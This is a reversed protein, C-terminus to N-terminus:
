KLFAIGINFGLTQQADIDNAKFAYSYRVSLYFPIALQTLRIGVEPSFGFQWSSVREYWWGWDVIQSTYYPGMNLGIFPVASSSQKKFHYQVTPALQVLDVIKIRTGEITTTGDLEFVGNEKREFTNWSFTFGLSLQKKLLFRYEFGFGEFSFKDVFKSTNGKPQAINYTVVFMHRKLEEAKQKETLGSAASDGTPAKIKVSKKKDDTKPEHNLLTDSETPAEDDTGAIDKESAADVEATATTDESPSSDAPETIGADRATEEPTENEAANAEPSTATEPVAQDSAEGDNAAKPTETASVEKKVSGEDVPPAAKEAATKDTKPAPAKKEAAEKKQASAAPAIALLMGTITLLLAMRLQTMMGRRECRMGNMGCRMGNMGCTM